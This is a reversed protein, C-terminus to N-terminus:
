NWEMDELKKDAKVLLNYLEEFSMEDRKQKTMTKKLVLRDRRLELTCTGEADHEVWLGEIHKKKAFEKIKAVWQTNNMTM